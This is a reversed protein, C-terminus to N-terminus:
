SLTELGTLGFQSARLTVIGTAQQVAFLGGVRFDGDQDTSTYFVRGYNVEAVHNQPSLVTETPLGPYNALLQNGYGINLFDHGTLRVQSYKQRITVEAAHVPSLNVNMDPAIEINAEINPSVTGFKAVANTVKYINPNGAIVLNDGPGPLSTLNNVIL